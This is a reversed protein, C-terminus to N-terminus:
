LEDRDRYDNPTKWPKCVFNLSTALYEMDVMGLQATARARFEQTVNSSAFIPSEAPKSYSHSQMFGKYVTNWDRIDSTIEVYSYNYGVRTAYFCIYARWGTTAVAFRLGIAAVQGFTGSYVWDICRSNLKGVATPLQLLEGVGYWGIWDELVLSFETQNEILAVFGYSKSADVLDDLARHSLMRPHNVEVTQDGLKEPYENYWQLFNRTNLFLGVLRSGYIIISWLPVRYLNVNAMVLEYGLHIEPTGTADNLDNSIRSPVVTRYDFTPNRRKVYDAFSVTNIGRLSIQPSSGSPLLASNQDTDDNMTTKRPDTIQFTV